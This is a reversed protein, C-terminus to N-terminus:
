PQERMLGRIAGQTVLEVERIGAARVLDLLDVLDVTDGGADTVLALTVPGDGTGTLHDVLNARVIDRGDLILTGDRALVLRHAALPVTTVQARPPAVGGDVARELHGALLLWLLLLFIVNVLPLINEDRETVPVSRVPGVVGVSRITSLARRKM